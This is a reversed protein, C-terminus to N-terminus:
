SYGSSLIDNDMVKTVDLIKHATVKAQEVDIVIISAVLYNVLEDPKIGIKDLHHADSLIPIFDSLCYSYSM